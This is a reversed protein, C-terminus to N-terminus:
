RRLSTMILQTLATTDPRAQLHVCSRSSARWSAFAGRLWVTEAAHKCEALEYQNEATHTSIRMDVM